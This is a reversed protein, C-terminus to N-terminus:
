ITRSRMRILCWRRISSVSSLLSPSITLSFSSLMIISFDVTTGPVVSFNCVLNGLKFITKLGSNKVSFDALNSKM